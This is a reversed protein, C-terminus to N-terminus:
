LRQLSIEPIREDTDKIVMTDGYLSWSTKRLDGDASTYEVQLAGDSYGVVAYPLVEERPGGVLRLQGAEILVSGTPSPSTEGPLVVGWEGQLQTHLVEQPTPGTNCAILAALFFFKM